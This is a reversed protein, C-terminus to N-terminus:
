FVIQTLRLVDSKKYLIRRGIKHTPKLIGNRNHNNLTVLSIKLLEAVKKRTM